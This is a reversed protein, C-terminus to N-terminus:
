GKISLQAIYVIILLRIEVLSFCKNSIINFKSFHCSMSKGKYFVIQYLFNESITIEIQFQM